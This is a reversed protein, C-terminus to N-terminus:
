VSIENKQVYSEVERKKKKGVMESVIRVSTYPNTTCLKIEKKESAIINHLATLTVQLIELQIFLIASSQSMVGQNTTDREVM